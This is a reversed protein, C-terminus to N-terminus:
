RAIMLSSPIRLYTERKKRLNCVKRLCRFKRFCCFVDWRVNKKRKPNDKWESLYTDIKRELLQM